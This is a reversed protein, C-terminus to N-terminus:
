IKRHQVELVIALAGNYSLTAIKFDLDLYPISISSMLINTIPM